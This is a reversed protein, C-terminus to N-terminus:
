EEKGFVRQFSEIAAAAGKLQQALNALAEESTPASTSTAHEQSQVYIAIGDELIASVFEGWKIHGPMKAFARRLAQESEVSIAVQLKTTRKGDARVYPISRTGVRNLISRSQPPESRVLEAAFSRVHPM